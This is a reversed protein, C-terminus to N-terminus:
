FTKKSIKENFKKELTKRENKLRGKVSIKKKLM